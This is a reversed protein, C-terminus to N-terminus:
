RSTCDWAIRAQFSPRFNWSRTKASWSIVLRTGRLSISYAKSRRRWSLFTSLIKARTKPSLFFCLDFLETAAVFFFFVFRDETHGRRKGVFNKPVKDNRM